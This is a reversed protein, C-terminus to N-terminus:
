EVSDPFVIIEASGAVIIFTVVEATSIVVCADESGLFMVIKASDGVHPFTIVVEALAVFMTVWVEVQVLGEFVAGVTRSSFRFREGIGSLRCGM